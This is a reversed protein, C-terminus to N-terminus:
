WSLQSVRVYNLWSVRAIPLEGGACARSLFCSDEAFRLNRRYFTPWGSQDQVHFSFANMIFCGQHYSCVNSGPWVLMAELSCSTTRVRTGSPHSTSFPRWSTIQEVWGLFLWLVSWRNEKEFDFRSRLFVRSGPRLWGCAIHVFVISTWNPGILISEELVGQFRM